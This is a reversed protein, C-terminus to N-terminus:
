KEGGSHARVAEQYAALAEPTGYLPWNKFGNALKYSPFANQFDGVGDKSTPVAAILEKQTYVGWQSDLFAKVKIIRPTHQPRFDLPKGNLLLSQAVALKKM